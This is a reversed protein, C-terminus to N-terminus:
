SDESELERIRQRVVTEAVRPVVERAVERVVDESMRRVVSRVIADLTAPDLDALLEEDAGDAIADAAAPPAADQPVPPPGAAPAPPPPETAVPEVAVPEIAATAVADRDTLLSAVRNRLTRSDFPKLLCGDAGCARAQEHDFSEFTGALLLVPVPRRSAKIRRCIEYGAPEPMVVDALVIDPRLAELRDLADVGNSVAEVHFDTDGFTLEVVKRITASDDALLISKSM